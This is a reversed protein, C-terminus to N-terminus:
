HQPSQDPIPGRRQSESRHIRATKHITPRENAGHRGPRDASVPRARPPLKHREFGQFARVGQCSASRHSPMPSIPTEELRAATSRCHERAGYCGGSGARTAAMLRSCAVQSGAMRVELLEPCGASSMQASVQRTAEGSPGPSVGARCGKVRPESSRLAQNVSRSRIGPPLMSAVAQRVRGLRLTLGRLLRLWDLSGTGSPGAQVPNGICAPSGM